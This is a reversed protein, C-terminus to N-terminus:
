APIFVPHMELPKCPTPIHDAPLFLQERNGDAFSEQFFSSEDLEVPRRVTLNTPVIPPKEIEL